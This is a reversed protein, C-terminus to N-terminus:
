QQGAPQQRHLRTLIQERTPTHERSHGRAHDQVHAQVRDVLEDEDGGSITQHCRACTLNVTM